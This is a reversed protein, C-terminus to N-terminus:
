HILTTIDKLKHHFTLVKSKAFREIFQQRAQTFDWAKCFMSRFLLFHIVLEADQELVGDNEVAAM